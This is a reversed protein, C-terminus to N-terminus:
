TAPHKWVHAHTPATRALLPIRRGAWSETLLVKVIKIPAELLLGIAGRKALISAITQAAGVIVRHQMGVLRRRRSSKVVQAYLLGPLPM